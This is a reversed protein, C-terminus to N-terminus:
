AFEAFPRPEPFPAALGRQEMEALQTEVSAELEDLQAAEVGAAELRARQLVLPDRERWRDLEGEPRYKGPDSRSHGVYRYTIAEVFQPGGGCRAAEVVRAATERVTWVAMGDITEAPVDMVEARARIPGATVDEFPTYEGYGNNECVLVIPLGLVKCFNLCEFFYGQNMAGDGFFAVAVGDRRRLALAAGTAAAISGGVIGFSGILRDKPSTVNMSGALGGNIGTARGLMEDLLAQADVGLALAHGHGRYTAAVRDHAALVSAFGVAVAEQGSYLHTTGHVESRLFLSQILDEVGRILRMRRYLGLELECDLKQEAVTV